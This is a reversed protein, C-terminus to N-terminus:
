NDSLSIIIKNCNNCHHAEVFHGKFLNKWTNKVLMIDHPLYGLEKAKGWRILHSSKIYGFEMEENCYACKM